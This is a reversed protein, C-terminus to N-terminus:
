RIVVKDKGTDKAEYCATDAEQIIDEVYMYRKCESVGISAGISLAESNWNINIDRINLLLKDCLIKANDIHCGALIVAFEDGGLRVLIDNERFTQHLVRGIEKLVEDGAPHGYTDNILKFGDLDFICLSFSKEESKLLNLHQHLAYNFGRRNLLGTLQDQHSQKKLDVLNRIQKLSNTSFWLILIFSIGLTLSIWLIFQNLHEDTLEQVSTLPINITFAGILHHLKYTHGPQGAQKRLNKIFETSEQQQHCSVCNQGTAVVADMYRLAKGKNSDEIRWVPEWNISKGNVQADQAELQKWGWQYFDDNGLNYPGINWKSIPKYEIDTLILKAEDSMMRQLQATIPIYGPKTKYEPHAGTGDERLKNVVERFYVNRVTKSQGIIVKAVLLANMEVSKNITDKVIQYTIVGMAIFAVILVYILQKKHTVAITM